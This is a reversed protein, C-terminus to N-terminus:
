FGFARAARLRATFGDVGSSPLNPGAGLAAGHFDADVAEAANAAQHEPGQPAPWANLQHVDVVVTAIGGGGGVQQGKIRHMAAPLLRHLGGVGSERHASLRHAVALLAVGGGHGPAFGAHLHHELAAAFEFGWFRELGIEVGDAELPHHHGARDLALDGAGFREVDTNPM